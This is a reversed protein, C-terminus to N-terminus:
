AQIVSAKALLELEHKFFKLGSFKRISTTPKEAQWFFLFHINKLFPKLSMIVMPQELCHSSISVSSFFLHILNQFAIVNKNDNWM